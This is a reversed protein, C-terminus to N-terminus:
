AYNFLGSLPGQRVIPMGNIINLYQMIPRVGLIKHPTSRIVQFRRGRRGRM